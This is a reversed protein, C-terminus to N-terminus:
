VKGIPLPPPTLCASGDLQWQGKLHTAAPDIPPQCHNLTQTLAMFHYRTMSDGLMLLQRGALARGLGDWNAPGCCGGVGRSGTSNAWAFTPGCQVAPVACLCSSGGGDGSAPPTPTPAARRAQLLVLSLLAPVWARARWMAQSLLVTGPPSTPHPVPSHTM